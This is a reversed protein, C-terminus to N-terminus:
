AFGNDGYAEIMRKESATIHDWMLRAAMASRKHRVADVLDLHEATADVPDLGVDLGLYLPRQIQDLVSAITAELRTNRAAHALQRHFATNYLLYRLYTRRDGPQYTLEALILLRAIEYPRVREAALAAARSEITRGMETLERIDAVTFPAVSYLQPGDEHILRERILRRCADRLLDPTVGIEGSLPKEQVRSGIALQCTLIRSKLEYYAREAPTKYPRSHDHGAVDSYPQGPPRM